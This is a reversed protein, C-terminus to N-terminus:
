ETGCVWCGLQQAEARRGEEAFGSEVLFDARRESRCKADARRGEEAFGGEM